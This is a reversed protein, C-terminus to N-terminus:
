PSRLVSGPCLLGRLGEMSEVPEPQGRERWLQGLADVGFDHMVTWAVARMPFEPDDILDPDYANLFARALVADRAFFGLWLPMWEYERVGIKADGFDILAEIGWGNDAPACLVHDPGLDGHVVVRSERRDAAIAQDLVSELPGVVTSGLVGAQALEDIAARRRETVIETWNRESAANAFLRSDLAHLARVTRGLQVALSVAAEDSLEQRLESYPRAACYRTILYARRVGGGDSVHGYGVLDPAPIEAQRGLGDLLARELDFEDWFPSYIKLAFARDLLFVANTNASAPHLQRYGIGERVCIADILGRWVSVDNYVRTWDEWSDIRISPLM